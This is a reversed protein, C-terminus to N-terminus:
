YTFKLVLEVIRRRRSRISSEDSRQRTRRHRGSGAGLAFNPHNFVNFAEIRFTPYRRDDLTSTRAWGSTWTGIARGTCSASAPIASSGARARAPLLQHRDVHRGVGAGSDSATARATRGSSRAPRRCRNAPATTSPSPSAAHAGPLDHQPALRGPGREKVSLAKGTSPGQRVAARLQRGLQLHAAHRLALTRLRKCRSRATWITSLGPGGDPGLGVGYYGVNDSLAKSYTYSALFELGDTPRQRLSAQLADYAGVGISNTGSTSPRHEPEVPLAAAAADLPRWTDVPGPDPEPQNFDFPVVM